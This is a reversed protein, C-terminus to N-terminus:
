AIFALILAILALLAVIAYVVARITSRALASTIALDASRACVFLLLIFPPQLLTKM